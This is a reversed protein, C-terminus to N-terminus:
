TTWQSVLEGNIYLEMPRSVPPEPQPEPLDNAILQGDVEKVETRETLQLNLTIDQGELANATSLWSLGDTQGERTSLIDPQNERLWVMVPVLLVNIDDTFAKVSVTLPYRKEFSLSTALTAVASGKSVFLQLKDPSNNLAPIASLLANRLSIPKQM